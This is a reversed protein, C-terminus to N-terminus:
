PLLLQEYITFVQATGQIKRDADFVSFAMINIIKYVIIHYYLSNVFLIQVELNVLVYSDSFIM